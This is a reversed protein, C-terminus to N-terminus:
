AATTWRYDAALEGDLDDDDLDPSGCPCWGPCLEQAGAHTGLREFAWCRVEAPLGLLDTLLIPRLRALARVATLLM